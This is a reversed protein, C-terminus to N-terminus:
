RAFYGPRARIAIDERAVDLKVRRWAGDFSQNGPYYAVSYVSRLEEALMPLVPEVDAISLAPFVRGGTIEALTDMRSRAKASWKRAFREGSRLFIPYIRADMERAANVLRDATIASPADQNSIRNDIGDSIVILANREGEHNILEEGYALAIIDWLPSGGSARPLQNVSEILSQHDTTLRTITHFMGGALAYLAVRDNEGALQILKVTAARMHGRDISTSGSLDLVIAMNFPATDAAAITVKQPVGDEEVTFEQPDLDTVPRGQKDSVAVTLSVMRVDSVFLGESQPNLSSPEMASISSPPTPKGRERQKKQALLRDAVEKARLHPKLPWDQPPVYTQLVLKPSSALAAEINGYSMADVKLRDRLRWISVNPGIPITSQMFNASPPVEIRAPKHQADLDLRTIDWPAAIAVAGSETTISLERMMGVVEIDGSKTKISLPIGFPVTVVLDVVEGDQPRAEVRVVEPTQTVVVDDRTAKRTKSSQNVLLERGTAIEVSVGGFSNEIEIPQALLHAALISSLLALRSLM